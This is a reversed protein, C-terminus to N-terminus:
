WLGTATGNALKDWQTALILIQASLLLNLYSYLAYLPSSGGRHDPTKLLELECGNTLLAHYTEQWEAM